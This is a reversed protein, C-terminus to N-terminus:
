VFFSVGILHQLVLEGDDDLGQRGVGDGAQIGVLQLLEIDAGFDLNPAVHVPTDHFLIFHRGPGSLLLLRCGRNHLSWPLRLPRGAEVAHGRVLRTLLVIALVWYLAVLCRHRDGMLILLGGYPSLVRRRKLSLHGGRHWAHLRLWLM